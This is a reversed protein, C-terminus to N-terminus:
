AGADGPGDTLARWSPPLVVDPMIRNMTQNIEDMLDPKYEHLDKHEHPITFQEFRLIPMSQYHPHCIGCDPNHYCYLGHVHQNFYYIEDIWGIDSIM